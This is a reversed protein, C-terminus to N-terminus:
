RKAHGMLVKTNAIQRLSATTRTKDKEVEQEEGGGGPVLPTNPPTLTKDNNAIRMSLKTALLEM